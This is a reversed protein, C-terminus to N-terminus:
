LDRVLRVSYRKPKQTLPLIMHGGSGHFNVSQLIIFGEPFESVLSDALKKYLETGESLKYQDSWYAPFTQPFLFTNINIVMMLDCQSAHCIFLSELEAKTPLRWDDYGAWDSRIQKAQKWTVHTAGSSGTCKNSTSSWVLGESCRKWMLGNSSDVVTGNEHEVLKKTKEKAVTSTCSALLLTSLLVFLYKM